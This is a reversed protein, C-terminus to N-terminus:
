LKSANKLALFLECELVLSRCGRRPSRHMLIVQGREVHTDCGLPPYDRVLLELERAMEPGEVLMGRSGDRTLGSEFFHM